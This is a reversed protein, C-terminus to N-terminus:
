TLYVKSKKSMYLFDDNSNFNVEPFDGKGVEILISVCPANSFKRQQEVLKEVTSVYETKPMKNAYNKVRIPIASYNEQALNNFDLADSDEPCYVGPIM